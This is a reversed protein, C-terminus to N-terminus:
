WTFRRPGEQATLEGLILEDGEALGELVEGQLRNRVGIRVDRTQAKGSGDLVRARYIGRQQPLAELATLPVALVGKAAANVFTVQATMQPMLAGDANDVDFLVTYLVVKSTGSSAQSSSASDETKPEEPAPLVQRVTGTWSRGDGGLTTFRVPMGARVRGVDAESVDTWVTMSSLDAIRLIAPTQYTANLTQGQEAKVSIVAGAIPAYVRTYDLQTQDASLTSRTQQIKAQLQDIRAASVKQEAEATQLDELRTSGEAFMQRQRGHKQQALQLQARQEALQAQLDALQAKGADVTAQPIRPDIEALLQGQKVVDGAKVLLRDIQGSVRVGVEVQTRPRLTGIASVTAEIDGRAVPQTQYQVGNRGFAWVLGGGVVVLLAALTLLRGKKGRGM